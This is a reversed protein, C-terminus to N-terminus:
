LSLSVRFRNFFPSQSDLTRHFNAVDPSNKVIDKWFCCLEIRILDAELRSPRADPRNSYSRTANSSFIPINQFSPYRGYTNGRRGSLKCISGLLTSKQFGVGQQINISRSDPRRWRLVRPCQPADPCRWLGTRVTACSGTSKGQFKCPNKMFIKLISTILWMSQNSCQRFVHLNQNQSGVM